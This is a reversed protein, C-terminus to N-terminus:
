LHDWLEAAMWGVSDRDDGEGTTVRFALLEGQDNIMLYLKFGFYWGMSSKGWTAYGDFVKHRSSRRNYDMALPTSDVM